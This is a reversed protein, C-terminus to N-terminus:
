FMALMGITTNFGDGSQPIIRQPFLANLISKRATSLMNSVLNNNEHPPQTVTAITQNEIEFKSEFWYRKRSM